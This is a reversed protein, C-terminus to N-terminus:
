MIYFCWFSLIKKKVTSYTYIHNWSPNVITGCKLCFIDKKGITLFKELCVNTEVYGRIVEILEKSLNCTSWRDRYTYM